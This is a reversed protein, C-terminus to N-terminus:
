ASRTQSINAIQKRNGKPKTLTEDFCFVAWCRSQRAFFRAVRETLSASL